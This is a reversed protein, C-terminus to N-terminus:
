HPACTYPIGRGDPSSTEGEEHMGMRVPPGSWKLHQTHRSAGKPRMSCHACPCRRHASLWYSWSSWTGQAVPTRFPPALHGIHRMASGAASCAMRASDASCPMAASGQIPGEV